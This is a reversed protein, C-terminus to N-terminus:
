ARWSRSDPRHAATATTAITTMLSRRCTPSPPIDYFVGSTTKTAITDRVVVSGFNSDNVRLFRGTFKSFTGNVVQFGHIGTDFNQLEFVVTGLGGVSRANRM